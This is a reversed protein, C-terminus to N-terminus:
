RDMAPQSFSLLNILIQSTLVGIGAVLSSTISKEHLVQSAASASTQLYNSEIQSYSTM